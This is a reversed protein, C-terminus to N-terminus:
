AAAGEEAKEPELYGRLRWRILEAVPMQRAAAETMVAELMEPTMPVTVRETMKDSIRKRGRTTM